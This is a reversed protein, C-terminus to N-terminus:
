SYCYEPYYDYDYADIDSDSDSDYDSDSSDPFFLFFPFFFPVFAALPFFASTFPYVYLWNYYNVFNHSAYSALVLLSNFYINALFLCLLFPVFASSTSFHASPFNNPCIGVQEAQPPPRSLNSLTM